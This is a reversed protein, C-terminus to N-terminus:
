KSRGRQCIINKFEIGMKHLYQFLCFIGTAERSKKNNM